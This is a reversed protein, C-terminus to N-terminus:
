RQFDDHYTIDFAKINQNAKVKLFHKVKPFRLSIVNTDQELKSKSESKFFTKGNSITFHKHMLEM